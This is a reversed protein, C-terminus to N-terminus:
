HLLGSVDVSVEPSVDVSVEPADNMRSATITSV